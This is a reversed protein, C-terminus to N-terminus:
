HGAESFLNNRYNWLHIKMEALEVDQKGTTKVLHDTRGSWKLLLQNEAERKIEFSSIGRLVPQFFGSGSRISLAEDRHELAIDEYSSSLEQDPFGGKGDTDSKFISTGAEVIVCQWQHSWRNNGAAAIWQVLLVPAVWSNGNRDARLGIDHTLIQLYNFSLMLASILITSISLVLLLELLSYGKTDDDAMSAPATLRGINGIYGPKAGFSDISRGFPFSDHRVCSGGTIMAPKGM